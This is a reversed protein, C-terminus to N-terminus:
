VHARGIKDFRTKLSGVIEVVTGDALGLVMDNKTLFVLPMTTICFERGTEHNYGYQSLNATIIEGKSGVTKINKIRGTISVQNSM